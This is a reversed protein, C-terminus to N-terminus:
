VLHFRRLKDSLEFRGIADDAIQRMLHDLPIVVLVRHLRELREDFDARFRLRSELSQTGEIAEAFHLLLRKKGREAVFM